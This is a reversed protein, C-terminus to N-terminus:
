GLRDQKSIICASVSRYTIVVRSIFILISFTWKNKQIDRTMVRLRLYYTRRPELHATERAHPLKENRTGDEDETDGGPRVIQDEELIDELEWLDLM